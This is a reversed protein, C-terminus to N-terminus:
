RGPPTTPNQRALGEMIQAEREVLDNHRAIMLAYEPDNPLPLKRVGGFDIARWHGDPGILGQVDYSVYGKDLLDRGYARVDAATFSRVNAAHEAAARELRAIEEATMTPLDYVETFGGEVRSMAYGRQGPRGVPVEGYFKASSKGTGAAWAGELERLFLATEEATETRFVKVVAKPGFGFHTAEYVGICQAGANGGSSLRKAFNVTIGVVPKILKVAIMAADLIAMAVAMAAKLSEEDVKAEDVIETEASVASGKAAKMAEYDSVKLAAGGASAALGTGLAVAALGGSALSGVVFAAASLTGLGIDLWFEANKYAEIEKDIVSRAFENGYKPGALLQRHVPALKLLFDDSSLKGRTKEINKLVDRLTEAIQKRADEPSAQSVERAAAPDGGGRSIIAYVAPNKKALDGVRGVLGEHAGMVAEYPLM